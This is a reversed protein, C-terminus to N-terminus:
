PSPPAAPVATPPPEASVAPAPPVAPPSSEPPPPVVVKPAVVPAPSAGSSPLPARPAFRPRPAPSVGDNYVNIADLLHPQATSVLVLGAIYAALGTALMAGGSIQRGKDPDHSASDAALLGLGGAMAVGGALVSLLGSVMGSKYDRAHQEAEPNGRVAEELEGGAIGGSYTKGDRVYSPVGGVQVVAVRPSKQPVYSTSCGPAGGIAVIGCLFLGGLRAKSGV